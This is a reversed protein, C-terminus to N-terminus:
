ERSNPCNGPHNLSSEHGAPKPKQYIPMLRMLRMLRRIRKVNVPYGENQLRWTMQQVGYFPTELFQRDILPMLALKTENEGQPKDYFSSRPLSLPRCQSGISLKPHDPEIM